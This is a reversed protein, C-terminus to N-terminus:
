KAANWIKETIAEAKSKGMIAAFSEELENLLGIFEKMGMRTKDIKRKAFACAAIAAGVNGAEEMAIKGIEPIKFRTRRVLGSSILGYIIKEATIKDTKSESIATEMNKDGNFSILMNWEEAEFDVSIKKGEPMPSIKLVENEPYLYEKVSIKVNSGGRMRRASEIILGEVCLGAPEKQAPEKEDFYFSGQELVLLLEIVAERVDKAPAGSVAAGTIEGDYLIIEGEKRESKVKLTGTRGFGCLLRLMGAVSISGTTGKM